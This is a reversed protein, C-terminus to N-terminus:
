APHRRIFEELTCLKDISALRDREIADLDSESAVVTLFEARKEWVDLHFNRDLLEDLSLGAPRINAIWRTAHRERNSNPPSAM